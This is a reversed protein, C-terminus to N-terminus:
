VTEFRYFVRDQDISNDIEVTKLRVPDGISLDDYGADDIRASLRVDGLDVTGAVFPTDENMGIAATGRVETFSHIEGEHPLSVYELDDSLCEPCVIRPPFHVTECEECRTTTFEGARLNDYFEHIRTHEPDQLEYFDLLRLLEIEDPISVTKRPLDDDTM